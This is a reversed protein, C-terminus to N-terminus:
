KQKKERKRARYLQERWLVYSDKNKQVQEPSMPSNGGRDQTHYYSANMLTPTNMGAPMYSKRKLLRFNKRDMVILKGDKDPVVYQRNRSKSYEKDAQEVAKDFQMKSKLERLFKMM